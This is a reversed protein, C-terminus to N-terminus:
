CSCCRWSTSFGQLWPWLCWLFLGWSSFKLAYKTMSHSQRTVKENLM